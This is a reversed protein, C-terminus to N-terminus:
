FHKASIEDQVIGLTDDAYQLLKIMQNMIKLGKINKNVRITHNIQYLVPIFIFLVLIKQFRKKSM